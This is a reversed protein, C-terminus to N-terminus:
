QLLRKLANGVARGLIPPVANGVQQYQETLSGAFVFDDPFSQIRAAERVSIVRNEVPHFFSGWHPDCKTLITSCMGNPDLRGYRKTHDSRRARQLGKPLLEFPIDRWSGGQPIHKMREINIEAVKACHHNLIRNSGNRLKKQYETQATKAYGSAGNNPRAGMEISEPLDSIADNVSPQPKLLQEELELPQQCLKKGGTFNTKVITYHTYDPWLIDTGLQSGIFFTRFRLQPIGFHGAFLIRHQVHYGLSELERYIAKVTGGQDFSVIGPVNEILVFKPNLAKAIRVFELFLHNRRDAKSRIPANISFGQCPPGGALLDLEGSKLGTLKKITRTNLCRIDEVHCPTHPHNFKYTEAYTSHIESAFLHRFGSMSLGCSLGGAGAFLDVCTFQQNSNSTMEALPIV